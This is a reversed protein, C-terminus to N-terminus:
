IRKNFLIGAIEANFRYCKDMISIQKYAFESQISLVKQLPNTKINLEAIAEDHDMIVNLGAGKAMKQMAQNQRLCSMFLTNVDNAQCYVIMRNLLKGAYGRKRFEKDVSIGIEAQNSGSSVIMHAFAVIEGRVFIAYAKDKEMDIGSQVYNELMSDNVVAFFRLYRDNSDLRKLHDLVAPKDSSTLNVIKM